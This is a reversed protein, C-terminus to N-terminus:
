MTPYVSIELVFGFGSYLDFSKIRSTHSFADTYVAVRLITKQESILDQFYSLKELFEVISEDLNLGSVEHTQRLVIGWGKDTRDEILFSDPLDRFEDALQDVPLEVFALEIEM